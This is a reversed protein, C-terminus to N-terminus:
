FLFVRTVLTDILVNEHLNGEYSTTNYIQAYFRSKVTKM